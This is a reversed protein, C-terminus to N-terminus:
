EICAGIDWMSTCGFVPSGIDFNSYDTVTPYTLFQFLCNQICHQGRADVSHDDTRPMRACCTPLYVSIKDSFFRCRERAPMDEHIFIYIIQNYNGTYVISGYVDTTIEIRVMYQAYDFCCLGPAYM